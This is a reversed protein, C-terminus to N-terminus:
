HCPKISAFYLLATHLPSKKCMFVIDGKSLEKLFVRIKYNKSLNVWFRIKSVKDQSGLFVGYFLGGYFLGMTKPLGM